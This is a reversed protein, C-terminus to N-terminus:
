PCNYVAFYTLFLTYYQAKLSTTSFKDKYIKQLINIQFTVAFFGFLFLLQGAAGIFCSYIVQYVVCLSIFRAYIMQYITSESTSRSYIMQYIVCFGIFRAYIM